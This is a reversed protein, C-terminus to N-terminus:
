QQGDLRHKGPRGCCAKALVLTRVGPKGHTCHLICFFLLLSFSASVGDRHDQPKSAPRIKTRATHTLSDLCTLVM